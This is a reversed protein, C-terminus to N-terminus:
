ENNGLARQEFESMPFVDHLRFEFKVESGMGYIKRYYVLGLGLAYREEGWGKLDGSERLGFRICPVKEGRFEFDPGNGLFRRQRVINVTADPDDLPHYKLSFQFVQSSDKAAFPYLVPSEIITRIQLQKGTEADTEYLFYERALAADEVIKQRVIQGIQFQADYYTGVLFLGSDRTVARYYWYETTVSDGQESVYEYVMGGRLQEVPFYYNRLRRTDDDTCAFLCINVLCFLILRNSM